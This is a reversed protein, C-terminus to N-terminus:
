NDPKWFVGVGNDQPPQYQKFVVTGNDTACELTKVEDSSSIKCREGGIWWSNRTRHFDRITPGQGLRIGELRVVQKPLPEYVELTLNLVSFFSLALPESDKLHWVNFFSNKPLGQTFMFAAKVSDFEYAHARGANVEIVGGVGGLWTTNYTTVYGQQGYPAWTFIESCTINAGGLQFLNKTTGLNRLGGRAAVVSDEGAAAAAVSALSAVVLVVWANILNAVVLM